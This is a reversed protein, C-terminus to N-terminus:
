LTEDRWGKRFPRYFSHDALALMPLDGSTDGYAYIEQYKEKQYHEQIRQVKERGRCNQGELQGSITQDIIEMKTALLDLNNERCWPALILEPTASVIVITDGRERHWQLRQHAKPRIITPLTVTCFQEAARNFAEQQTNFFFQRLVDEKLRQNPYRKCLFKIIQPLLLGMGISFRTSGVTQKVFLLFSDRSSITGDFDFLALDM